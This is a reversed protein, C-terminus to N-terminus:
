DGADDCHNNSYKTRERRRTKHGFYGRLEQKWRAVQKKTAPRSKREVFDSDRAEDILVFKNAM